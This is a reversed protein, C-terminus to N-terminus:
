SEEDNSSSSHEDEEDDQDQDEEGDDEDEPECSDDHASVVSTNKSTMKNLKKHSNAAVDKM